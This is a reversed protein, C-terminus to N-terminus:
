FADSRTGPSIPMNVDSFEYFRGAQIPDLIQFEFKTFRQDDDWDSGNKQQEFFKRRGAGAKNGL